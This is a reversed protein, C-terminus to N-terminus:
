GFRLSSSNKVASVVGTGIKSYLEAQLAKQGITENDYKHRVDDRLKQTAEAVARTQLINADKEEQLMQSKKDKLEIESRLGHEWKALEKHVKKINVRHEKDRAKREEQLRHSAEQRRREVSESAKRELQKRRHVLDQRWAEMENDMKEVSQRAFDQRKERKSQNLMMQHYKQQLM